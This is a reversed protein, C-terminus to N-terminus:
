PRGSRGPPDAPHTEPLAPLREGLLTGRLSAIIPQNRQLALSRECATLIAERAGEEGTDRYIAAHILATQNWAPVCDPALRLATRLAELAADREGKLGLAIGLNTWGAEDAPRRLTYARFCAAAEAARSLELAAEGRHFCADDKLPRSLRGPLDTCAPQSAPADGEDLPGTLASWLELAEVTRARSQLLVALDFSAAPHCPRQQLVVRLEQEARATQDVAALARAAHLRYEVVPPFRDILHDLLILADDYRELRLLAVSKGFMIAPDDPRRVLLRDFARMAAEHRHEALLQTAAELESKPPPHIMESVRTWAEEFWQDASVRVSARM